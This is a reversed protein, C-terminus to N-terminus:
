RCNGESSLRHLGSEILHGVVPQSIGSIGIFGEVGHQDIQVLICEIVPFQGIELIWISGCGVVIICKLSKKHRIEGQGISISKLCGHNKFLRGNESTIGDSM